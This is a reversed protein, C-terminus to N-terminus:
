LQKAEVPALTPAAVAFPNPPLTQINVYNQPQQQPRQYKSKICKQQNTLYHCELNAKCGTENGYFANCKAEIPDLQQQVTQQPMAAPIGGLIGLNPQEKLPSAFQTPAVQPNDKTKKDAKESKTM